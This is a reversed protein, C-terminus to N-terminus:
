TLRPLNIDGANHHSTSKIYKGAIISTYKAENILKFMILWYLLNGTGSLYFTIAFNFTIFLLTIVILTFNRNRIFKSLCYILPIFYFLFGVIGNDTLLCIWGSEPNNENIAYYLGNNGFILNKLPYNMYQIIGQTWYYIRADQSGEDGVSILRDIAISANNLSYIIIIAFVIIVLLIYKRNEKKLVFLCLPVLLLVIGLRANAFFSAVIAILLVDIKKYNLLYAGAVFMGLITPGYLLGKARFVGISGGFIQENFEIGNLENFFLYHHTFFEYGSLILTLYVLYIILKNAYKFDIMYVLFAVVIGYYSYMNHTGSWFPLSIALLIISCLVLRFPIIDLKTYHVGNIIFYCLLLAISISTFLPRYLSGILTIGYAEGFILIFISIIVIKGLGKGM